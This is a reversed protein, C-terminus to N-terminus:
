VAVRTSPAPLLEARSIVVVDIGGDRGIIPARERRWDAPDVGGATAADVSAVLEAGFSKCLAEIRSALNVTDGIATLGTAHGYGMEGLIVPGVHIGIGMRLPSQLDHALSANLDKLALSM